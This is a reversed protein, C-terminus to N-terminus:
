REKERERTLLFQACQTRRNQENHMKGGGLAALIPFSKHSSFFIFKSGYSITQAIIELLTLIWREYKTLSHPSLPPGASLCLSIPHWELLVKSGAWGKKGGKRKRYTGPDELHLRCPLVSPIPNERTWKCSITWEYEVSAHGVRVWRCEGANLHALM